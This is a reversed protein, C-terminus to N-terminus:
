PDETPRYFTLATDGFRRERESALLGVTSPPADRWFHKAVVRGGPRLLPALAGLAAVLAATDEYPPDVVALDRAPEGSRAPGRLWTVTDARVETAREPVGFGTGELNARIFARLPADDDVVLVSASGAKRAPGTARPGALFAELDTRRFRRHGGPTYFAPLRGNDAWKRLTSQAAGLFAAAQGLTLWERGYDAGRRKGASERKRDGQM